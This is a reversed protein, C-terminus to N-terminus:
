GNNRSLDQLDGPLWPMGPLGNLIAAPNQVATAGQITRQQLIMQGGGTISANPYTQPQLLAFNAVGQSFLRRGSYNFKM